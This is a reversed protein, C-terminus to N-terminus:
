SEAGVEVSSEPSDSVSTSELSAHSERGLVQLVQELVTIAHQYEAVAIHENPTHDLSSDGPGYAVINEGWIPAVVNMDSTGTKYKFVPVHGGARLVRGFTRALPTVRSSQFAVEEGSFSIHVEDADAWEQLQIRLEAIDFRPPLRYGILFQTQDEMGNQLSNISRLSPMLAAFASSGAYEANWQEAHARIREWFAAAIENSSRQPGASHSSDRAVRGEVLLRGKYGITVATSSSPEGIICAQPQYCGVVARAGKSTAAEEEVAGIIVIPTAPTGARQVRATASIFAALPGKADVAGRGYLLDEEFRVPINGPVTDMHGLLVIPHQEELNEHTSAVFNGAEDVSAYLGLQRAQGALYHALASERRSLSPITLMNHLLAVEPDALHPETSAAEEQALQSRESLARSGELVEELTDLVQELQHESIVLPPLLRIVNPGAPLALIGRECLQELYPQARRKLEIGILLGLGRVERVLPSRMGRLRGLAYAGLRAASTPLSERELIDLTALAAACALPNGGFTSGHAGRGVRGSEMVRPGLGIAGMPVGGALSKAMCLIDPQLDYHECAFLRGTRGFGTQVEDVILLVGREHCLRALGAVYEPTASHVGGEGQVLEIIVAATQESIATEAAELNNYRIHTVDPLLPAFPERYHPEWTASLAGMSRGHFGRLTAIIQTRGTVLRAFKFAGEVAETGSNCLFFHEIGAPTVQSLRELLRARTDNYFIEPCTVLRQAQASLAAAIEPRGHGINAVGHGAACDIYARGEADWLTAGEGRVITVPRKGYVGSTYRNEQQMSTEAQTTDIITM